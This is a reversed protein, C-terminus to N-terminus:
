LKRIIMLGDRFPLLINEVRPDEQVMQNFAILEATDKDKLSAKGAVKGDWLANDAIILGGTSVKDVIMEYYRAYFEKDADIFVLDFSLNLQPIIDKADGIMLEIKQEAEAEQIFERIMPELEDNKEITILKGDEALGEALCIASYGTFAGIELAYRPQRLKSLLSLLRGQLHGSLMRPRMVKLHTERDIRSLIEPEPSTHNEIYKIVEPNSFDM